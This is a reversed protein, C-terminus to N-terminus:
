AVAERSSKVAAPSGPPNAGAIRIDSLVKASLELAPLPRGFYFGQAQDGGAEELFQVHKETEVGEVTVRMNLDRGLSMIMKMVTEAARGGSELGTLFSQDIKIKSFPFRWLYSLSSFGIGFDDIAIAVGMAKLARLEDLVSESDKLLLNETIELELRHPALGSDDLAARVDRSVRGPEFQAVSVNVAVTLHPPWEAATRCAERLVWNGIKDILHLEEAIPIFVSPAILTGDAAPLRLLAEFGTLRRGALQYIPQYHLVFLGASTAHSITRELEIRAKLAADM